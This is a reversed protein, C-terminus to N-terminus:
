EQPEIPLGYFSLMPMRGLDQPIAAGPNMRWAGHLVAGPAPPRAFDLVLADREAAYAALPVFGDADEAEIPLLAAPAGFADLRNRVHAFELRVRCPSVRVARKPEPARWDAGRGHLAGLLAAAFREGLRLNGEPALHAADYLPLDNAPVVFVGPVREAAARQAQRVQGWARDLPESIENLCRNLQATFVPLEPQGLRERVHAAFASFRELYDPAGGVYGEAEGQYWLMARPTVGAGRLMRLMNDALAGNEDPNWWSLPSGGYPAMVLGIPCGLARRLLKAMHLFPSHGPNHNSYNGFYVAGTAEDLPHAALDWRGSYRYMHVGLEPPDCIPTLARGCANSQGAVVFVDGVGVHHIMDGRTVSLGDWGDYEMRTELRYPGGTPVARLVTEWRRGPLLACAQWPVAEAGSDEQVARAFVKVGGAGPDGFRVPVDPSLRTVVYSGELWIAATGGEGRQFIQWQEAGRDILAGCNIGGGQEAACNACGDQEAGCNTGGGQESGCNACGLQEAGGQEAGDREDLWGNEGGMM